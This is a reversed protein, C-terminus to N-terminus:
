GTTITSVPSIRAPSVMRQAVDTGATQREGAEGEVVWRRTGTQVQAPALRNLRRAHNFAGPKRSSSQSVQMSRGGGGGPPLKTKARGGLM